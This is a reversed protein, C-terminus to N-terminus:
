RSAVGCGNNADTLVAPACGTCLRKFFPVEGTDDRYRPSLVYRIEDPDGTGWVAAVTVTRGCVMLTRQDYEWGVIHSSGRETAPVHATSTKSVTVTPRTTM